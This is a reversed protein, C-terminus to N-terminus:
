PLNRLIVPFTYPIGFPGTFLDNGFGFDIYVYNIATTFLTFADDGLSLNAYIRARQAFGGFSVNDIGIGGLYTFSRGGLFGDFDFNNDGHGLNVYLNGGVTGVFVTAGDNGSGGIMTFNGGVVGSFTLANGLESNALRINASGGVIGDIIVDDLNNGGTYTLNGGIATTAGVVLSNLGNGFVASLNGGFATQNLSLIDTGFPSNNGSQYRVNGGVFTNFLAFSQELNETRSLISLNGGITVDLFTETFLFSNNVNLFTVDGLVSSSPDAGTVTVTDSGFGTDVLLGGPLFAGTDLNIDILDNAVNMTRITLNGSIPTAPLALVGGDTVTITSPAAVNISLGIIPDTPGIISLNGVGDFFFSLPAPCDRSELQELQESLSVRM